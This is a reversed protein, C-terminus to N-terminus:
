ILLTPNQIYGVGADEDEKPEKPPIRSDGRHGQHYSGGWGGENVMKKLKKLGSAEEPKLSNEHVSDEDNFQDRFDRYIKRWTLRRLENYQEM